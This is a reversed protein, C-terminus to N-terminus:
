KGKLKNREADSIMREDDDDNDHCRQLDTWVFANYTRRCVAVRHNIVCARRANLEHFIFSNRPREREGAYTRADPVSLHTYIRLSVSSDETCRRGYNCWQVHLRLSRFRSAVIQCVCPPRTTPLRDRPDTSHLPRCISLICVAVRLRACVCANILVRV